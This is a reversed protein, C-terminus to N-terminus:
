SKELEEIFFGDRKVGNSTKARRVCYKGDRKVCVYTTGRKLIGRVCSARAVENFRIFDEFM